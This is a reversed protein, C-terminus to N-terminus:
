YRRRLTSSADPLSQVKSVTTPVVKTLHEKQVLLDHDGNPQEDVPKLVCGGVRAEKVRSRHDESVTPRGQQRSTGEVRPLKTRGKFLKIKGRLRFITTSGITSRPENREWPRYSKRILSSTHSMM